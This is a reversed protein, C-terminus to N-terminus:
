IVVEPGHSDFERDRRSIRNELILEQRAKSILKCLTVRNQPSLRNVSCLGSEANFIRRSFHGANNGKLRILRILKTFESNSYEFSENPFYGFKLARRRHNNSLIRKYFVIPYEMIRTTWSM